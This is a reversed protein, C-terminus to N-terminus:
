IIRDKANTEETKLSPNEKFVVTYLFVPCCIISLNLLHLSLCSSCVQSQEGDSLESADFDGTLYSFLVDKVCTMNILACSGLQRVVACSAKTTFHM